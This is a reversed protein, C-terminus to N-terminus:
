DTARQVAKETSQPSDELSYNELIDKFFERQNSRGIIVEYQSQNLHSYESRSLDALGAYFTCFERVHGAVDTESRWGPRTIHQLDLRGEYTNGDEWTIRFATKDYGLKTAFRCLNILFRQVDQFSQFRPPNVPDMGHQKQFASNESWLIDIHKLAHM